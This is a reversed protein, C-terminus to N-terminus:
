PTSSVSTTLEREEPIREAGGYLKLVLLTPNVKMEGKNAVIGPHTASDILCYMPSVWTRDDGSQYGVFVGQVSGSSVASHRLCFVLEIQEDNRPYQGGNTKQHHAQSRVVFRVPDYVDNAAENQVDGTRKGCRETKCIDEVTKVGQM